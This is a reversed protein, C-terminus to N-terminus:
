SDSDSEFLGIESPPLEAAAWLNGVRRGEVPAAASLTCLTLLVSVVPLLYRAANTCTDPPDM